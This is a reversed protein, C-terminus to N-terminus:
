KQHYIVDLVTQGVAKLTNPDIVSIDDRHTHWHEFFGRGNPQDIIDITQIGAQTNLYFHDDTVPNSRQNSFYQTYGLRRSAQWVKEVIHPAYNMSHGEKPFFANARGVMDLNIGYLPRYEALHKNKAWHQSGLGYSDRVDPNGYDEGDWLCIDVGVTPENQAILRAIELLIAVGSGGDNAGPIPEDQRSTDQDAVPRTDWHASILVRRNKEPYFAAIINQINLLSGDYAEVTVPKVYMKPGLGSLYESLWSACRIHGGTNPVRPGFELQKEVFYFASDAQFDPVSVNLLYDSQDPMNTPEETCASFFMALAILLFICIEKNKM